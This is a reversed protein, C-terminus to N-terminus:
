EERRLSKLTESLPNQAECNVTRLNNFPFNQLHGNICV